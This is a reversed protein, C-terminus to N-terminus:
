EDDDQGYTHFTCFAVDGTEAAEVLLDIIDQSTDEDGLHDSGSRVDELGELALKQEALASKLRDVFESRDKCVAAVYVHAGIQGDQALWSTSSTSYICALAVTLSAANGTVKKPTNGTSGSPQHHPRSGDSPHPDHRAKGGNKSQRSAAERSAKKSNHGVRHQKPKGSPGIETEPVGAALGKEREAEAEASRALVITSSSDVGV